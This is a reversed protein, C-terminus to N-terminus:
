APQTESTQMVLNLAETVRSLDDPRSLRFVPVTNALQMAQKAEERRAHMPVQYSPTAPNTLLCFAADAPLLRQVSLAGDKTRKNLYVISQIPLSSQGSSSEIVDVFHKAWPIFGLTVDPGFIRHAMGRSIRLLTSGCFARGGEFDVGATDDSLMPFGAAQATATLTSKGAMKDGIIIVASDGNQIVAGHLTLLGLCRRLHPLVPACLYASAGMAPLLRETMVSITGTESNVDVLLPAQDDFKAVWQWRTTSEVFLQNENQRVQDHIHSKWRRHMEPGTMEHTVTLTPAGCLNTDPRFGLLPRDSRVSLGFM